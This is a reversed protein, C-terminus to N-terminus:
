TARACYPCHALCACNTFWCAVNGGLRGDGTSRSFDIHYYLPLGYRPSGPDTELQQITVWEEGYPTVYLLDDPQRGPMAPAQLNGQGRLGMLLVSFQGLNALVDARECTTQLGLREQLRDVTAEFPTYTDVTDDEKITPWQSWAAEPYATVIRHAIDQRLFRAKFDRYELREQYGLAQHVRRLGGYLVGLRQALGTRQALAAMVRLVVSSNEM